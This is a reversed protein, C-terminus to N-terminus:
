EGCCGVETCPNMGQDTPDLQLGAAEVWVHSSGENSHGYHFTYAVGNRTLWEALINAAEDCDLYPGNDASRRRAFLPEWRRVITCGRAAQNAQTQVIRRRNESQM